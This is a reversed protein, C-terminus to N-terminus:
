FLRLHEGEAETCRLPWIVSSTSNPLPRCYVAPPLLLSGSSGAATRGRHTDGTNQGDM